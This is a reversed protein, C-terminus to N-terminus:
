VFWRRYPALWDRVGSPVATAGAITTDTYTQSIVDPITESRLAPDRGASSWRVMLYELAAGQVDPPIVDYGADYDIVILNSTWPYMAASADLRYLSGTETDVEWQAPDVVTGEETVTLVPLGGEDLPIPWQRTLLPDGPNLWNCVSRNQDRYTQRVFTRGCYNDIALSVQDIYQQILADKSTDAPDIGLAVKAQDLTVLALSEAPVIVRSLQYRPNTPM